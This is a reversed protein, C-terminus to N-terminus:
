PRRKFFRRKRFKYGSQNTKEYEKERVFPKEDKIIKYGLEDEHIKRPKVGSKYAARAIAHSGVPSTLFIFIILLISKVSYLSFFPAQFFVGLLIVCTGGVNVVTQAHTRSYIDPFRILGLAGIVSIISGTFILIWGIM